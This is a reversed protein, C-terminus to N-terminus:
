YVFYGFCHYSFWHTEHGGQKASCSPTIHDLRWCGTGDHGGDLRGLNSLSIRGKERRGDVSSTSIHLGKQLCGRKYIFHCQILPYLSILCCHLNSRSQRQLQNQGTQVPPLNKDFSKNMTVGYKSRLMRGQLWRRIKRTLNDGKNM